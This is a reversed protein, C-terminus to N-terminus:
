SPRGRPSAVMDAVTKKIVAVELPKELRPAGCRELYERAGETFAGGTVFVFRAVMEPHAGSLWEHLDMGSVGPMMADCLIVDFARDEELISRARLEPTEVPAELAAWMAGAPLLLMFLLVALRRMGSKSM